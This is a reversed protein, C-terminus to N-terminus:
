ASSAPSRWSPVLNQCSRLWSPNQKLLIECTKKKKKCFLACHICCHVLECHVYSRSVKREPFGMEWQTRQFWTIKMENSHLSTMTKHRRWFIIKKICTEWLTLTAVKPFKEYINVDAMCLQVSNWNNLCFCLYRFMSTHFISLSAVMSLLNRNFFLTVAFDFSVLNVM